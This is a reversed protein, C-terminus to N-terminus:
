RQINWRWKNIYFDFLWVSKRCFYNWNESKIIPFKTQRIFFQPASSYWLNGLGYICPSTFSISKKNKFSGFITRFLLIDNKAPLFWLREVWLIWFLCVVVQCVVFENKASKQVQQGMHFYQQNLAERKFCKLNKKANFIYWFITLKLVILIQRFLKLFKGPMDEVSLSLGPRVLCLLCEFPYVM